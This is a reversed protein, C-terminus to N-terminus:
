SRGTSTAAGSRSAASTCSAPPGSRSRGCARRRPHADPHERDAQRDPRVSLDSDPDCAWATVDVAAETPGYLNHLEADLREFFRDQLAKPLAEGSCIVRKLSACDGARPDELFLQLM